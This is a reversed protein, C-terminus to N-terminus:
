IQIVEIRAEPNVSHSGICLYVLKIEGYEVHKYKDEKIKEKLENAWIGLKTIIGEQLMIKSSMVQVSNESEKFIYGYCYVGEDRPELVAHGVVYEIKRLDKTSDLVLPVVLPNQRDFCGPEIIRNDDCLTNYYTTWGKFDWNSNM